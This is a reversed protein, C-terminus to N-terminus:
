VFEKSFECFFQWTLKAFSMIMYDRIYDDTVDGTIANCWCTIVIGDESVCAEPLVHTTNWTNCFLIADPMKSNEIKYDNLFAKLVMLSDDISLVFIVDRSCDEDKEVNFVIDSTDSEDQPGLFSHGIGANDLIRRIRSVTQETGGSNENNLGIFNMLTQGAAKFYDGVGM